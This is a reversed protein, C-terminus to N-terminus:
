TAAADEEASETDGEDAQKTCGHQQEQLVDVLLSLTDIQSCLADRLREAEELLVKIQWAAAGCDSFVICRGESRVIWGGHIHTITANM